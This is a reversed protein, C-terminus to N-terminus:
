TKKNLAFEKEDPIFYACLVLYKKRKMM